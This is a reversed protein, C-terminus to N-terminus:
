PRAGKLNAIREKLSPYFHNAREFRAQRNLYEIMAGSLGHDAAFADAELEQTRCVRTVLDGCWRGIGWAFLLPLWLLRKERHLRQCHGVEHCLLASQEEQPLDSFRASVVIRHFPWLGRAEAIVNSAADEYVDIGFISDIRKM